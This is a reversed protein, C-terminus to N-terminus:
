HIFIIFFNNEIKRKCFKDFTTVIALCIYSFNINIITEPEAPTPEIRLGLVEAHWPCPWFGFHVM